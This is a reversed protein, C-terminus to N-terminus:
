ERILIAVTLLTVIINLFLGYSAKTKSSYRNIFALLSLIIGFINESISGYMIVRLVQMWPSSESEEASITAATPMFIFLWIFLSSAGIYFSARSYGSSKRSINPIKLSNDPISNLLDSLPIWDSMGEQWGLDNGTFRDSLIRNRIESASYPGQVEQNKTVYIIPHTMRSRRKSPTLTQTNM